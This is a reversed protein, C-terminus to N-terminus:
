SIHRGVDISVVSPNVLRSMQFRITAVIQSTANALSSETLVVPAPATAIAAELRLQRQVTNELVKPSYTQGVQAGLGAGYDLHWIYDGSNTLLRRIVRQSTEAQADCVDLDGTPGFALDGAWTGFVAIMEM